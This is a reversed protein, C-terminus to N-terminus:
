PNVQKQQFNEDDDWNKKDFHDNDESRRENQMDNNTDVITSITWLEEVHSNKSM